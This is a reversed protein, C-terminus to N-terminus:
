RPASQGFNLVFAKMPTKHKAKSVNSELLDQRTLDKYVNEVLEDEEQSVHIAVPMTKHDFPEGAVMHQKFYCWSEMCFDHKPSENTSTCPYYTSMIDLKMEKWPGGIHRNVATM